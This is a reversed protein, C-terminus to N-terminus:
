KIHDSSILLNMLAYMWTSHSTLGTLQNQLPIPLCSPFVIRKDRIMENVEDIAQQRPYWQVENDCSLQTKSFRCPTVYGPYERAFNRVLTTEPEVAIVCSRIQLSRMYGRLNEWSTYGFSTVECHARRYRAEGLNKWKAAIFILEEGPQGGRVAVGMTQASKLSYDSVCGLLAERTVYKALRAPPLGEAKRAEDLAKELTAVLSM